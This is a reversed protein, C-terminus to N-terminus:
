GTTERTHKYRTFDTNQYAGSVVYEGLLMFEAADRPAGTYKAVPHGDLDYFAIVPTVRVRNVKFAFDKSPLTRGQFDTLPTDGRIDVPLMLFHARFYAQVEPRNFVTTKMRYCFPCEEQEFFLMVGAKGEARATKLDDRLDGLTQDFFGETDAASAPPLTGLALGLALTLATFFARM